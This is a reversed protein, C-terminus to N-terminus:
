IEARRFLSFYPAPKMFVTSILSIVRSGTTRSASPATRPVVTAPTDANRPM